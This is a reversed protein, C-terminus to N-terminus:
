HRAAGFWRPVRRKYERYKAGFHAEMVREELPMQRFTFWAWWVLAAIFVAISGYLVAWGLILTLEFLYMPHRSFSYPGRTLLYSKTLEWELGHGSGTMHLTLTWLSGTVGAILPILGLLNWLGPGGAAWGYRPPLLSLLWPVVGWVIAFLVFALWSPIRKPQGSAPDPSTNM